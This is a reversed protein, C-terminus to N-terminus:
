NRTWVLDCSRMGSIEERSVPVARKDWIVHPKLGAGYLINLFDEPNVGGNKM